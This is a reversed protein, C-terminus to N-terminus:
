SGCVVEVSKNLVSPRDHGWRISIWQKELLQTSKGDWCKRTEKGKATSFRCPRCGHVSVSVRRMVQLHHHCTVTDAFLGLVRRHKTVTFYVSYRLKSADQCMGFTPFSQLNVDGGSDQLTFVTQEMQDERSSVYWSKVRWTVAMTSSFSLLDLQLGGSFPNALHNVMVSGRNCCRAGLGGSTAVSLVLAPVFRWWNRNRGTDWWIVLRTDGVQINLSLTDREIGLDKCKAFRLQQVARGKAELRQMTQQAQVCLADVSLVVDVKRMRWSEFLETFCSKYKAGLRLVLDKWRRTGDELKWRWTRPESSLRPDSALSLWTAAATNFSILDPELKWQQFHRLDLVGPGFVGSSSPWSQMQQLTQRKM